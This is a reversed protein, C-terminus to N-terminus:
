PFEVLSKVSLIISNYSLSSWLVTFFFFFFFRGLETQLFLLTHAHQTMDSEKLGMFQWAGRDMPNEWCAYQLPNGNRGKPSRGSGPILGM